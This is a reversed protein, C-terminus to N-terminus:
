PYPLHCCPCYSDPKDFHLKTKTTDVVRTAQAHLKAKAWDPPMTQLFEEVKNQDDLQVVIEQLEM